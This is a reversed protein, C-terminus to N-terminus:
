RGMLFAIQSQCEAVRDASGAEAYHAMAEYWLMMTEEPDATDAALLAYGRLSDALELPPALEQLRYIELAEQYFPVAKDVQGQERYIDAVERVAHALLLSNKQARYIAVVDLYHKLASTLNGLQRDLQGLETLAQVFQTQDRTKRGQAVAAVFCDKADDLRGNDRAARGHAILEALQDNMM